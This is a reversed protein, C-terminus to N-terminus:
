QNRTSIVSFAIGYENEMMTKFEALQEKGRDVTIKNPLSYRTYQALEVQNAVLDTIEEPLSNIEIRGTGQDILTFTHFYIDNGNKGKMAYKRCGKNRNMRYKGILDIYLM